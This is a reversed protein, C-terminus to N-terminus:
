FFIMLFIQYIITGYEINDLYIIISYVHTDITLSLINVNNGLCRGFTLAIPLSWLGIGVPSCSRVIRRRIRYQFSTKNKMDTQYFSTWDPVLKISMWVEYTASKKNSAYYKVTEGTFCLLYFEFLASLYIFLFCKVKVGLPGNRPKTEM